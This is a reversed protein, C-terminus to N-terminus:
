AWNYSPVEIELGLPDFQPGQTPPALRSYAQNASSKAQTFAIDQSIVSQQEASRISASAQADAFGRQREADLALLGVSKGTAGSALVRGQAGIAKAYNAQNQFAVKDRAENLKVQEQVYSMNAAKNINGISKEYSLRSEQAARVEGQYRAATARNSLMASQQQQERQQAQQQAQLDMQQQAQAAQMQASQQAQMIGAATGIVSVATGIVATTASVAAASGAVAGAIPLCM